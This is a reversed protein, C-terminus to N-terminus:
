QGATGPRHEDESSAPVSESSSTGEAPVPKAPYARWPPTLWFWKLDKVLQEWWMRMKSKRRVEFTRYQTFVYLKNKFATMGQILEGAELGLNILKGDCGWEETPKQSKSWYLYGM